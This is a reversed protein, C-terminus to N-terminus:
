PWHMVIINTISWCPRRGWPFRRPESSVGLIVKDLWGWYLLIGFSLAGISSSPMTDKSLRPYICEYLTSTCNNDTFNIKSFEIKIGQAFLHKDTGRNAHCSYGKNTKSVINKTKDTEQTSLTVLFLLFCLTKYGNHGLNWKLWVNKEM